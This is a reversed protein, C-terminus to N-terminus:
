FSFYILHCRVLIPLACAYLLPHGMPWLGQWYPKYCILVSRALFAPCGTAPPFRMAMGYNRGVDKTQPHKIM